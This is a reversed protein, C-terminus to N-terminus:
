HEYKLPYHEHTGKASEAEFNFAEGEKMFPSEPNHCGTCQAETVPAILGVKVLDARKYEKNKLSMYEKQTYTGGPGHCSECGIGALDPTSDIDVFGGPKGYGTVHCKVCKADKTYDMEPDLGAAKKADANVGAKLSDYAKAMKTKEWSKYEKFHCAKCKKTGVYAFDDAHAGTAAMLAVVMGLATACGIWNWRHGSM